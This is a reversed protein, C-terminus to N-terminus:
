KSKLSDQYNIFRDRGKKKAKYLAKDAFKILWQHSQRSDPILSAIGLSVSVYSSIKSGQHPIKLDKIIQRIIEAVKIAGNNDTHPLIIAFEEGGYRTVLDKPRKVTKKLSAAIQKLCDDGAQHGYSDNYSKFYDVDCMILSIWQKERAMQKWERSLYEDFHRRNAIQTLGDLTALNELEKNKLELQQYLETVLQTTLQHIKSQTILLQHIDLIRYIKPEIAVIIPEDLLDPSRQLAINATEVVSTQSPLILMDTQVFPYLVKLPRQVFLDLSYPKSMQELFRRRSIIGVLLNNETVIVGPLRPESQFRQHIKTGTDTLEIQFDYLCLEGITLEVNYNSNGDSWSWNDFLNNFNM